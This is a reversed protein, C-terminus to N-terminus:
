IYLTQFSQFSREPKHTVLLVGLPSRPVGRPPAGIRGVVAFPFWEPIGTTIPEPVSAV